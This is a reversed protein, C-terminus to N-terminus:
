HSSSRSSKMQSMKKPLGFIHLFARTLNRLNWLIQLLIANGKKWFSIKAIKNWRMKILTKNLKKLAPRVEPQMGEM